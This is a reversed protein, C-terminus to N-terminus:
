EQKQELIQNQYQQWNVIKYKHQNIEKQMIGRTGSQMAASDKKFTSDLRMVESLEYDYEPKLSDSVYHQLITDVKQIGPMLGLVSQEDFTGIKIQAKTNTNILLSAALVMCGVLSKKM